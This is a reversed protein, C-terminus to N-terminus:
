RQIAEIRLIIDKTRSFVDHTGRGFLYTSFESATSLDKTACAIHFQHLAVYYRILTSNEPLENLLTAASEHANPEDNALRAYIDPRKVKVCLLWAEVIEDRRVGAMVWWACVHKIERATLQLVDGFGAILDTVDRFMLQANADLKQIESEVIRRLGANRRDAHHNPLRVPYDVFRDLYMQGDTDQGYFAKVAQQIQARNWLLVFVVGQIEFLHKIRELFRIAYAPSCRDLEDVFVVVKGGDPVADSLLKKLQEITQKRETLDQLRKKIFADSADQAAGIVDDVAEGTLGVMNGAAKLGAKGAAVLLKGALPAVSNVFTDRQKAPVLESFEALLSLVPDDHWDASFTDIWITKIQASEGLGDRLRRGFWTKGAGWAGDIGIVGGNLSTILTSLNNGFAERNLADGEYTNAPTTM